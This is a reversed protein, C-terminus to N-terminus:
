ATRRAVSLKIEMKIGIADLIEQMRAIGVTQYDNDEWRSVAQKAVGLLRALDTQSLGKAIRMRAIHPAVDKLRKVPPLDLEGSKLRDYERVENELQRLMAEYSGRVAAAGPGSAARPLRELAARFGEIQAQTRVRQADSKIV